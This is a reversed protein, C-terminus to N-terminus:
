GKISALEVESGDVALRLRWAQRRFDTRFQPRLGNQLAGLDSGQPWIEAPFAALQPWEGELPLNYEPRQHLGGVTSRCVQHDTRAPWGRDAGAPWM